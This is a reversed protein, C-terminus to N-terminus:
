LKIDGYDRCYYFDGGGSHTINVGSVMEKGLRSSTWKKTKRNFGNHKAGAVYIKATYNNRFKYSIWKLEGAPSTTAARGWFHFVLDKELKSVPAGVYKSFDTLMFYKDVDNMSEAPLESSKGVCSTAPKDVCSVLACCSIVFARYITTKM